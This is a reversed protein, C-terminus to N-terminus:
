EQEGESECFSDIDEITQDRIIDGKNDKTADDNNNKGSENKKTEGAKTNVTTKLTEEFDNQAEVVKDRVQKVKETAIGNRKCYFAAALSDEKNKFSKGIFDFLLELENNTDLLFKILSFNTEKNM